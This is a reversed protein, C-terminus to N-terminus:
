TSTRCRLPVYLFPDTSLKVNGVRPSAIWAIGPLLRQLCAVVPSCNYGSWSKSLLIKFKSQYCLDALDAFDDKGRQSVQAPDLSYVVPLVLGSDPGCDYEEHQSTEGWCLESDMCSMQTEFCVRPPPSPPGAGFSLAPPTSSYDQQIFAILVVHHVGTARSWREAAKVLILGRFSTCVSPLPQTQFEFLCGFM